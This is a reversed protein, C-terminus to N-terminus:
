SKKILVNLNAYDPLEVLLHTLETYFLRNPRLITTAADFIAYESQLHIRLHNFFQNKKRNAIVKKTQERHNGTM